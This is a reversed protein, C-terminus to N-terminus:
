QRRELQEAYEPQAVDIEIQVVDELGADRDPRDGIGDGRMPHAQMQHGAAPAIEEMSRRLDLVGERRHRPLDRDSGLEADRGHPQDESPEPALVIRPGLCVDHTRIEGPESIGVRAADEHELVVVARREVGDDAALEQLAPRPRFDPHIEIGDVEGFGADIRSRGEVDNAGDDTVDVQLPDLVALVAFEADAVDIQPGHALREDRPSVRSTKGDLVLAPEVARQPQVPADLPRPGQQAVSTFYYFIASGCEAIAM